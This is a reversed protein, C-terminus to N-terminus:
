FAEYMIKFSVPLILIIIFDIIQSAFFYIMFYHDVFIM